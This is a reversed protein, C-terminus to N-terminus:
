ETINKKRIKCFMTNNSYNELFFYIIPIALSEREREREREIERERERERKGRDRFHQCM